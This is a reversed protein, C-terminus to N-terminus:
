YFDIQTKTKVVRLTYEYDAELMINRSIDPTVGDAFILKLSYSTPQLGTIQLNTKPISNQKIGNLIVFFAQGGNNFVTLNSTQSHTFFAFLLLCTLISFKM